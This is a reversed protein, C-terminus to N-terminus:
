SKDKKKKKKKEKQTKKVGNKQMEVFAEYKEPPLGAKLEADQAMTIKEMSERMQDPELQLIQLEIRKQVYKKLTSSLVAAEFANLDLAETINPMEADVIQEATMPEPEEPEHQVQPISNRRGYGYGYGGYGYGGYGGYGGYQAQLEYSGALLTGLALLFTIKTKM